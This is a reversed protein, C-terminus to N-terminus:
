KKASNVVSSEGKVMVKRTPHPEKWYGEIQREDGIEEDRKLTVLDPVSLFTKGNMLYVSFNFATDEDIRISKLLVDIRTKSFRFDGSLEGLTEVHNEDNQSHFHLKEAVEFEIDSNKSKITLDAAKKSDIEGFYVEVRGTGWEDVLM